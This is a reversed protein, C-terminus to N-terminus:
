AAIASTWRQYKRELRMESGVGQYLYTYLGSLQAMTSTKIVYAAVKGLHRSEHITLPVATVLNWRRRLRRVGWREQLERYQYQGIGEHALYRVLHEMFIRSACTFSARRRRGVQFISGDGDWCGRIFHRVMAPPMMPFILTRSKRPTLGLRQLDHVMPQSSIRLGCVQSTGNPRVYIPASSGMLARVKELLEPEKQTIDVSRPQLCGDTAIVGLVWAMAPSWTQFFTKNLDYRCYQPRISLGLARRKNHVAQRTCGYRAAIVSIPLHQTLYLETMTEVTLGSLCVRRRAEPEANPQETM